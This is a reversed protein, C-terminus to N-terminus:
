IGLGRTRQGRAGDALLERRRDIDPNRLVAQREIAVDPTEQRDTVLHRIDSEHFRAIQIKGAGLAASRDQAILM